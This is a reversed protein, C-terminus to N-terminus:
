RSSRLYNKIFFSKLNLPDSFYIISSKGCAMALKDCLNRFNNGRGLMIISLRADVRRLFKAERIACRPPTLYPNFSSTPEGDTILFIIGTGDKTTLIERARMLALGIDTRGQAVLNLIEGRKIERAKHNFAIVHLEHSGRKKIAARLGIASEIAGVFKKGRM